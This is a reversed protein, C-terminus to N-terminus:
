KDKSAVVEIEILADKPLRAVEVTTRAPKHGEFFQTYIENIVPFDQMNKIYIGVRLVDYKSYKADKLIAEINALSQKTQESIGGEVILMTHPDLPIQGSTFLMGNAEVAHSYPGIAEPANESFIIKKSM